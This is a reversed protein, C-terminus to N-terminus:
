TAIPNTASRFLYSKRPITGTEAGLRLFDFGANMWAYSCKSRRSAGANYKCLTRAMSSTAVRGLELSSIQLQVLGLREFVAALRRAPMLGPGHTGM